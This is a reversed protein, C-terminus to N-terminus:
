LIIFLPLSLLPTIGIDETHRRRAKPAAAAVRKSQIMIYMTNKYLNM